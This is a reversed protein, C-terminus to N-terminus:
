KILGALVKIARERDELQVRMDCMERVYGNETEMMQNHLRKSEDSWKYKEKEFFECQEKLSQNKSRYCKNDNVLQGVSNKLDENETQLKSCMGALEDFTYSEQLENDSLESINMQESPNKIMKQFDKVPIELTVQGTVLNNEKVYKELESMRVRWDANKRLFFVLWRINVTPLIYQNM